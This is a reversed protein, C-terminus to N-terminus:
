RTSDREGPRLCHERKNHDCGKKKKKETNELRACILRHKVELEKEDATNIPLLSVFDVTVVVLSPALLISGTIVAASAGPFCSWMLGKM